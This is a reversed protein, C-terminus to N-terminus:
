WIFFHLLAFTFRPYAGPGPSDSSISTATRGSMSFAQGKGIHGEASYAGPGALLCNNSNCKFMFFYLLLTFHFSLMRVFNETKQSVRSGMSFARGRQVPANDYAGPGPASNDMRTESRGSMSFAPGGQSHQLDYAGPGPASSMM